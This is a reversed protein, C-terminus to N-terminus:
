NIKEASKFLIKNNDIDASRIFPTGQEEFENLRPRYEGHNGDEVKLLNLDELESATYTKWDSM